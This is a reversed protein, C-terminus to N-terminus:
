ILFRCLRVCKQSATVSASTEFPVLDAPGPSEVTADDVGMETAIATIQSNAIASTVRPVESADAAHTCICDPGCPMNPDPKQQPARSPLKAQRGHCGSCGSSNSISSPTKSAEANTCCAFECLAHTQQLCSALMLAVGGLVAYGKLTGRCYNM